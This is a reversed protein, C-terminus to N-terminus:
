LVMRKIGQKLVPTNFNMLLGTKIGSLRLYTLLQAEHVPALAEVAKIELVLRGDIVLDLRYGAEVALAGKYRIPLSVQREFALGARSLEWSLCEEYASELLGPGLERHVEIAAGIVRATLPDREMAVEAHLRLLSETRGM